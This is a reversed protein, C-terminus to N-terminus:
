YKYRDEGERKQFKNLLWYQANAVMSMFLSASCLAVIITWGTRYVPADHAQFIQSGAIGAINAGMVFIAMTISREGASRANLSLWAGNVAHWNAMFATAMTLFGFRLDRNPSTILLRNGLQFVWLGLVGLFVMLGRKSYKDALWGWLLNLVLLIWAGITMMANSQLRGYGFGIVLTPAYAGLAHASAMGLITTLFHPLIRWNTFTDKVEGWSVNQRPQLKSPDDKFVRAQLIASERETFYRFSKGAILSRPNAPSQPFFAIFILGVVITFLGELLFLWQWGSLGAIGRMHLIGYAILGSCAGAFLNGLFYYSFRRSIESRKYWRTMTYLGAPIFGAECLGLLLRTTLYPGLGKGKIFAQFTAVAGWALIQCGIWLTPGVRYLIINSPIELLVIGTSLLQQGINFQFQTIGVEQMFFDTMANGINGRDIQLAFFGLILLPMILFDVRRLLAKEEEETWTIEQGDDDTFSQSVSSATVKELQKEDAM